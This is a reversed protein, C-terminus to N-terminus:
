RRELADIRASLAALQDEVSVRPPPEVRNKFAREEANRQITEADSLERYATGTAEAALKYLIGPRRAAEEIGNKDFIREAM